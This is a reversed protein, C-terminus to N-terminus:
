FGNMELDKEEPEIYNCMFLCGTKSAKTKNYKLIDSLSKLSFCNTFM